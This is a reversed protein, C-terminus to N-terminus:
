KAGCKFQFLSRVKFHLIQVYFWKFLKKHIYILIKNQLHHIYKSIIQNDSIKHVVYMHISQSRFSLCHAVTFREQSYFAKSSLIWQYFYLTRDWFLFPVARARVFSGPILALSVYYTIDHTGKHTHTVVYCGGALQWSSSGSKPRKMFAHINIWPIGACVCVCSCLRVSVCRRM